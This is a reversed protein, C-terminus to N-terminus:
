YVPVPGFNVGKLDEVDLGLLVLACGDASGESTGRLLLRRLSPQPSRPCRDVPIRPVRENQFASTGTLSWPDGFVRRGTATDLPVPVIETWVRGTGRMSPTM